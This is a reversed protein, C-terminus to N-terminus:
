RHKEEHMPNTPVGYLPRGKLDATAAFVLNGNELHCPDREGRSGPKPGEAYLASDAPLGTAPVRVTGTGSVGLQDSSRGRRATALILFILTFRM